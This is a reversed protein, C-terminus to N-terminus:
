LGDISLGQRERKGTIRARLRYDISVEAKYIANRVPAWKIVCEDEHSGCTVNQHGGKSAILKESIRPVPCHSGVANKEVRGPAVIVRSRDLRRALITRGSRGKRDRQIAARVFESSSSEVRVLLRTDQNRVLSGHLDRKVFVCNFCRVSAFAAM